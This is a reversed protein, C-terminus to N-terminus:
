GRNKLINRSEVVHAKLDEHTTMAALNKEHALLDTTLEKGGIEQGIKPLSHETMERALYMAITRPIVITKVRKQGKSDLVSDTFYQAVADLIQPISHTGSRDDLKLAKSADAALSTYNDENKMTYFALVRVLAGELDRVNSEITGAIYTLTDDPICHDEAHAKHRLIAIRTELDPPSDDVSLGKHLRSVLREQM